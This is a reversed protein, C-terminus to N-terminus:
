QTTRGPLLTLARDLSWGTAKDQGLQLISILEDM